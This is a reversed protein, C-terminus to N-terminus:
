VYVEPLALVADAFDRYSAIETSLAYHRQETYVCLMFKRDSVYLESSIFLLKGDSSKRLAIYNCDCENKPDPLGIVIARHKENEEFRLPLAKYKSPCRMRFEKKMLLISKLIFNRAAAENGYLDDFNEAQLYFLKRLVNFCFMYNPTTRMVPKEKTTEYIAEQNRRM